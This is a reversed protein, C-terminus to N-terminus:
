ARGRTPTDPLNGTLKLYVRLLPALRPHHKEYFAIQSSRYAQAARRAARARSQGRLHVIEAAPTFLVRHHCARIAACFDVDEVYMFYREDLLGVADADQRRVLLCVGSVWDVVRERRTLHEVHRVITGIGRDNGKVLLKQRLETLPAIMSGFSLEARGEANVVRPGVVAVDPRADLVGVLRDIAGPPVLTDPNLLLILESASGRIGLNNARAFGLNDGAQILRVAPWQRTVHDATGDSSANDVVIIDHSVVPPHGTLSRLCQDLPARVNYSVIIISLRPTVHRRLLHPHGSDDRRLRDM